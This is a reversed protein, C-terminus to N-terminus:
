FQINVLLKDSEFVELRIPESTEPMFEKFAERVFEPNENQLNNLDNEEVILDLTIKIRRKM